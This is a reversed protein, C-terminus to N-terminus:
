RNEQSRKKRGLIFSTGAASQEECRSDTALIDFEPFAVNLEGPEVVYGPNFTPHNLLHNRNFTKYFLLGGPRVWTSISQFLPRKLYRVVSVLDFHHDPFQCIELDCAISDMPLGLRRASAQGPALGNLACDVAVVRYGLSALYLANRGKGSAVELATKPTASFDSDLYHSLAVLEDEGKPDIQQEVQTGDASPGAYKKNWRNIDPNATIKDPTTL